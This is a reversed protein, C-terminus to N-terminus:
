KSDLQPITQNTLMLFIDDPNQIRFGNMRGDWDHPISNTGSRYTQVLAFIRISVLDQEHSTLMRFPVLLSRVPLRHLTEMYLGPHSGAVILLAAVLAPPDNAFFQIKGPVGKCRRHLVDVAKRM